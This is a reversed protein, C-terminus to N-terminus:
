TAWLLAAGRRLAMGPVSSTLRRRRLETPKQPLSFDKRPMFIDALLQWEDQRQLRAQQLEDFTRDLCTFDAPQVSIPV